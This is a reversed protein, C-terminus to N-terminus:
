QVPSLEYNYHDHSGWTIHVFPAVDWQVGRCQWVYGLCFSDLWIRLTGSYSDRTCGLSCTIMSWVATCNSTNIKKVHIGLMVICTISYSTTAEDYLVANLSVVVHPVGMRGTDLSSVAGNVYRMLIGSLYLSHGWIISMRLIYSSIYLSYSTNTILSSHETM